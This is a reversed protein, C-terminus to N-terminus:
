LELYSMPHTLRAVPLHIAEPQNVTAVGLPEQPITQVLRTGGM